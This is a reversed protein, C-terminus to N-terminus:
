QPIQLLLAVVSIIIAVISLVGSTIIPVWFRSNYDSYLRLLDEGHGTLSYSSSTSKILTIASKTPDSTPLPALLLIFSRRMESDFHSDIYHDNVCRRSKIKQLVRLECSNLKIDALRSDM